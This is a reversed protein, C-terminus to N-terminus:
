ASKYAGAPANTAVMSLASPSINLRPLTQSPALYGRYSFWCYYLCENVNYRLHPSGQSLPSSANIFLGMYKVCILQAWINLVSSSDEM